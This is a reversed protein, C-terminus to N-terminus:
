RNLMPFPVISHNEAFPNSKNRSQLDKLAFANFESKVGKRFVFFYFPFIFLM